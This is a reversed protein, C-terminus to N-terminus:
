ILSDLCVGGVPRITLVHCSGKGFVSEMLDCFENLLPSPVFNQTTGAFGGGHVRWAGNGSLMGQALCLALSLGQEAINCPAYVNQLYEFSSHGSEIILRKFEEFDGSELAEVQQAVRENDRLFHIARLVARDGHEERLSALKGMLQDISTERLYSVSLANSVARM